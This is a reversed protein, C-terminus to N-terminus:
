RVVVKQVQKRERGKNDAVSLELTYTGPKTSALSLLQRRRTAVGEVQDKFSVVQVVPKPRKKGASRQAAFRVKGRYPTGSALGCVDYRLDLDSGASAHAVTDMLVLFKPPKGAVAPPCMSRGDMTASLTYAGALTVAVGAGILGITRPNGRSHVWLTRGYGQARRFIAQSLRRGERTGDKSLGIARRSVDRSLRQVQRLAGSIKPLAPRLTDQLARLGQEVLGPEFRRRTPRPMGPDPNGSFPDSM